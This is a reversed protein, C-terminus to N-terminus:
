FKEKIYLDRKIYEERLGKRYDKMNKLIYMYEKIRIDLDWISLSKIENSLRKRNEEYFKMEFNELEKLGKLSIKTM